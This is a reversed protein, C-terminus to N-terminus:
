EARLMYFAFFTWDCVTVNLKIWRFDSPRQVALLRQTQARKEGTTNKVVPQQVKFSTVKEDDRLSAFHRGNVRSKFDLKQTSNLIFWNVSFNIVHEATFYLLYLRVFSNDLLIFHYRLVADFSSISEVWVCLNWLKQISNLAFQQRMADFIKSGPKVFIRSMKREPFVWAPVRFVPGSIRSTWRFVPRNAVRVPSLLRRVVLTTLTIQCLAWDGSRV